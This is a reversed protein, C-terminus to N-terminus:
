SRGHVGALLQGAAVINTAAEGLAGRGHEGLRQTALPGNSTM